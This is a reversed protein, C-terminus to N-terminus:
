KGTQDGFQISSFINKITEDAAKKKKRIADETPAQEADEDWGERPFEKELIKEIEVETKGEAELSREREEYKKLYKDGYDSDSFLYKQIERYTWGADKLARTKFNKIFKLAIPRLDWRRKEKFLEDYQQEIENKTTWPFVKIIEFRGWEAYQNELIMKVDEDDMKALPDEFLFSIIPCTKWESVFQETEKILKELGSPDINLQEQEAFAYFKSLESYLRKNESVFAADQSLRLFRNKDSLLSPHRDLIKDMKEAFVKYDLATIPM